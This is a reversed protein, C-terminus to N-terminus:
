MSLFLLLNALILLLGVVHILWGFPLLRRAQAM